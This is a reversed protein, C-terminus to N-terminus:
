KISADMLPASFMDILERSLQLRWEFSITGRAGPGILPTAGIVGAAARGAFLPGLPLSGM